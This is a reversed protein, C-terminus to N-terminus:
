RTPCTWVAIPLLNAYAEAQATTLTTQTMDTDILELFDVKVTVAEQAVECATNRTLGLM